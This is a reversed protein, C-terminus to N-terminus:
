IIVGQFLDMMAVVADCQSAVSARSRDLFPDAPAQNSQEIRFRYFTQVEQIGFRHPEDARTTFREPVNVGVFRDFAQALSEFFADLFCGVFVRQFRL